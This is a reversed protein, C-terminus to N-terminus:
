NGVDGYDDVDGCRGWRWMTGMEVDDGDGCRWMEVDDWVGVTTMRFSTFSGQIQKQRNKDKWENLVSLSSSRLCDNM